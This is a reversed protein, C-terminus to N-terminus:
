KNKKSGKGKPLDVNALPRLQTFQPEASPTPKVIGGTTIQGEDPAPPEVPAPAGLLAEISRVLRAQAEQLGNLMDALVPHDGLNKLHFHLNTATEVLRKSDAVAADLKRTLETNM